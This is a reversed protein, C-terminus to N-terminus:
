TVRVLAVVDTPAGGSSLHKVLRYDGPTADSPIAFEHSFATAPQVLRIALPVPRNLPIDTWSGNVLQQWAIGYGTKFCESGTNTLTVGLVQGPAAEAPTAALSAAIARGDPCDPPLPAPPPAPAVPASVTFSRTRRSKGATVRLLYSGAPVEVTFVARRAVRREAVVAVRRGSATTHVLAVVASPGSRDRLRTLSVRVTAGPDLGRLEAASPWEVSFAGVRKTSAAQADAAGAGLVLALAISTAVRSRGSM